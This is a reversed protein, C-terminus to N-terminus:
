YINGGTGGAFWVGDKSFAGSSYSDTAVNVAGKPTGSGADWYRLGGDLAFTLATKSDPTFGTAIVAAQHGELVKVVKGTGDLLNVKNYREGSAVRTGDPSISVSMVAGGGGQSAIEQKSSADWLFTKEDEAGSAIMKGNASCAVVNVDRKHGALSVS